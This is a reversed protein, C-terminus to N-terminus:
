KKHNKIYNLFDIIHAEEPWMSGKHFKLDEDWYGPCDKVATNVYGYSIENILFRGDEDKLIDYAMSQFNGKKSTELAIKVAGEPINEVAPDFAGSGSARFDDPRNHRIFGFARGGIVTIRIDHKNNPIFKQLYVYNKQLNYYDGRYNWPLDPFGQGRIYKMGEKLRKGFDPLKTDKAYENMSYPVMGQYFMKQILKRAEAEDDVKLVNSSGAGVSLKFVLPYEAERVFKLAEKKDWFVWSDIKPVDLASLLYHQSVKEDFHWRTNFDPFVPINMIREIVTMIKQVSQKQDPSHLWHWMAGDCGKVKEICDDKTYNFKVVEINRKELETIWRHAYNDERIPDAYHVAIKM